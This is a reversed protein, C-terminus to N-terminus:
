EVTITLMNEVRIQKEMKGFFSVTFDSFVIIEYTGAESFSLSINRDFSRLPYMLDSEASSVVVDEEGNISYRIIRPCHTFWFLRFTRNTLKCHLTIAEGVAATNESEISLSFSKENPLRFLLIAVIMIGIICIGVTIKSKTHSTKRM